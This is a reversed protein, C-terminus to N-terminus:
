GRRGPGAGPLTRGNWWDPPLEPLPDAVLAEEIRGSLRLLAAQRELLAERAAPDRLRPAFEALLRLAASVESSDDVARLLVVGSAEAEPNALLWDRYLAVAAAADGEAALTDARRFLEEPKEAEQAPLVAPLLALFAM